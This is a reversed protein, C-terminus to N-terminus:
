ETSRLNNNLIVGLPHFGFHKRVSLSSYINMSILAISSSVAAGTVGFLSTLVWGGLMAVVGSTLVANRMSREHNSMTLVWGGAGCLIMSFQGIASIQLLRAGESAKSSFIQLVVHPMILMPLLMPLSLCVGTVTAKKLASRIAPVDNRKWAEAFIPAADQTAAVLAVTSIMAIRQSLVLQAVEVPTCYRGAFFQGFLKSLTEVMVMIWVPAASILIRNWSIDGAGPKAILRWILLGVILTITAAVSYWFSADAGDQPRFLVLAACFLAGASVNLVFVSSNIRRWGQLCRSVILILALAVIAPCLQRLPESFSPKRFVGEAIDVSLICVGTSVISAFVAVLMFSKLFVSNAEGWSETSAAAATQRLVVIEVGCGCCAAIFVVTSYALLFLGAQEDGVARFLLYTMAMTIGSGALRMIFAALAGGSKRRTLLQITRSLM